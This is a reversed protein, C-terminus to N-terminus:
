SKAASKKAGRRKKTSEANAADQAQPRESEDLFRFATAVVQTRVTVEEDSISPETISLQDLNVIRDLRSVEDFFTAVQHYSGSVEIQVPVDAYFERKQEPNPKFLHVELGSDRATDSVKALLNPIEKKDPLQQLAQNLEVDLRSVEERFVDLNEATLRHQAVQARLGDKGGLKTEFEALETSAPSYFQLWYGVAVLALAGVLVGVRQGVPREVLNELKDRM